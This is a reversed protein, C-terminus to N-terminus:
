DDCGVIILDWACAKFLCDVCTYGGRTADWLSSVVRGRWGGGVGAWDQLVWAVCVGGVGFAVDM